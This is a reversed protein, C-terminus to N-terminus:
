KEEQEEQKEENDKPQIIKRQMLISPKIQLKYVDIARSNKMKEKEDLKKEEEDLFEQFKTGNKTDKKNKEEQKQEKKIRNIKSIKSIKSIKEM